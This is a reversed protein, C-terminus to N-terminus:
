LNKLWVFQYIKMWNLQIDKMEIILSMIPCFRMMRVIRLIMKVEIM